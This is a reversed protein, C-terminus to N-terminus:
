HYITSDPLLIRNCSFKYKKEAIEEPSLGNFERNTASAGSEIVYKNYELFKKKSDIMYQSKLNERKAEKVIQQYKNEEDDTLPKCQSLDLFNYDYFQLDAKTYKQILGEQLEPKTEFILREPSFVAHDAISRLMQTVATKCVDSPKSNKIYGCGNIWLRKSLWCKDGKFIEEIRETHNVLFYIHFGNCTSLMEKDKYIHASSSYKVIKTVDKFQPIIESIKDIFEVQTMSKNNDSGDYDFYVFQFDDNWQFNELTRSIKKKDIDQM